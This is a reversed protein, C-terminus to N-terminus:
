LLGRERMVHRRMARYIAADDDEEAIMDTLHEVSYQTWDERYQRRGAEYRARMREDKPTGPNLRFPLLARLEDWTPCPDVWPETRSDVFADVAAKTQERTEQWSDLFGGDLQEHTTPVLQEHTTSLAQDLVARYEPACRELWARAAAKEASMNSPSSGGSVDSDMYTM